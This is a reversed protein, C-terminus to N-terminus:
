CNDLNFTQLVNNLNFTQSFMTLQTSRPLLKLRQSTCQGPLFFFVKEKNKKFIFYYNETSFLSLISFSLSLDLPVALHISISFKLYLFFQAGTHNHKSM